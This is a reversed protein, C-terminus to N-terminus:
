ADLMADNMYDPMDPAVDPNEMSALQNPDPVDVVDGVTAWNGEADVIVDQSDLDHNDNIDIIAVDAAGDNDIDLTVATHGDV